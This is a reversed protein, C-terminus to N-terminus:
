DNIILFIYIEKNTKENMERKLINIHAKMDNEVKLHLM